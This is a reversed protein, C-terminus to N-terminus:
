AWGAGAKGTGLLLLLPLGARQVSPEAPLEVLTSCWDTRPDGGSLAPAPTGFWGGLLRSFKSRCEFM